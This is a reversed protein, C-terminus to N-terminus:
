KTLAGLHQKQQQSRDCFLSRKNARNEKTLFDCFRNRFIIFFVAGATQRSRFFYFIKNRTQFVLLALRESECCVRAYPHLAANRKSFVTDVTSDVLM